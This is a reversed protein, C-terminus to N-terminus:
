RCSLPLWATFRPLDTSKLVHLLTPGKDRFHGDGLDPNPVTWGTPQRMNRVRVKTFFEQKEHVIGEALMDFTKVLSNLFAEKIGAMNQSTYELNNKAVTIYYRM